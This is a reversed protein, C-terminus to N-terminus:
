QDPVIWVGDSVVIALSGDNLLRMRQEGFLTGRINDANAEAPLVIDTWTPTGILAEDANSFAAVYRSDDDGARWDIREWVVALSSGDASLAAGFPRHDPRWIPSSAGTGLDTIQMIPENERVAGRGSEALSFDDVIIVVDTDTGGTPLPLASRGSWGTSLETWRNSQGDFWWTTPYGVSDRSVAALVGEGRALLRGRFQMNPEPLSAVSREFGRPGAEVIEGREGPLLRIMLLRDGATPAPGYELYPLPRETNRLNEDDQSPDGVRVVTAAQDVLFVDHLTFLAQNPAAVAHTGDATWQVSGLGPFDDSCRTLDSDFKTLCVRDDGLFVLQEGDPSIEGSFTTRWEHAIFAVPSRPDAEPVTTSAQPEARESQLLSLGSPPGLCFSEDTGEVVVHGATNPCLASVDSTSGIALVELGDVNSCSVEQFRGVFASSGDYCRGVTAEDQNSVASTVWRVAVFGVLIMAVVAVLGLLLSRPGSAREVTRESPGPPPEAQPQPSRLEHVVAGLFQDWPRRDIGRFMLHDGAGSIVALAQEAYGTQRLRAVEDYAAREARLLEAGVVGGAAEINGQAMSHAIAAAELRRELESTVSRAM